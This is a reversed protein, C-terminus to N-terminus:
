PEEWGIKAHPKIYLCTSTRVKQSEEEPGRLKWSLQIISKDSM